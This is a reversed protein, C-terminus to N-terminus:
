QKPLLLTRLLQLIWPWLKLTLISTLVSVIIPTIVSRKLFSLTELRNFEDLRLGKHDLYFGITTGHKTHIYKIYGNEELYRVATRVSEKDSSVATAIEELDEDFDYYRQSPNDSHTQMYKLIKKSLSDLM